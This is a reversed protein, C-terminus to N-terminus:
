PLVIAHQEFVPRHMTSANVFSHKSGQYRAFNDIIDNSLVVTEHRQHLPLKMLEALEAGLVTKISLM